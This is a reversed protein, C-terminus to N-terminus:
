DKPWIREGFRTDHGEPWSQNVKDPQCLRWKTVVLEPDTFVLMVLGSHIEVNVGHKKAFEGTPFGVYCYAEEQGVRDLGRWIGNPNSCIDPIHWAENLKSHNGTAQLHDLLSQPKITFLKNVVGSPSKGPFEWLAAETATPNM